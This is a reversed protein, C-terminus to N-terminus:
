LRDDPPSENLAKGGLPIWHGPKSIYPYNIQEKFFVSTMSTFSNLPAFGCFDIQSFGNDRLLTCCNPYWESNDLVILGHKKVHAIASQVCRIREAGDVVIVDFEDYSNIVNPYADLDVTLQVVANSPMDDQMKDYWPAFHEVSTVSKCRKAWYLTSGGSGFEFVSCESFDYQNLFDIAPYTIWPIHDNTSDVSNGHKDRRIQGRKSLLIYPARLGCVLWRPAVRKLLSFISM